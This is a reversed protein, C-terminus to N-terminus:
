NPLTFFSDPLERAEISLVEQELILNGTFDKLTIKLPIGNIGNRQLVAFIGRGLVVAPFGSPNIGTTKSVWCTAVAESTKVIYEECEFGAVNSKKRTAEASFATSFDSNAFSSYPIDFTTKGGKGDDGYMKVTAVGQLMYLSFASKVEPTNSRIDLRSNGNKVYWDLESKEANSTNEGRFKLVGQFPAQALMVQAALVFTALSLFQKM